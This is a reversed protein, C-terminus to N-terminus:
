VSRVLFLLTKFLRLGLALPPLSAWWTNVIFWFLFAAWALHPSVLCGAGICGCPCAVVVKGQEGVM